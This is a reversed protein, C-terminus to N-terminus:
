PEKPYLVVFTPYQDKDVFACAKKVTVRSKMVTALSGETALNETFIGKTFCLEQECTCAGECTSRAGGHNYLNIFKGFYIESFKAGLYINQLHEVLRM